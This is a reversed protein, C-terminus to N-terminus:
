TNSTNSSMITSIILLLVIFEITVSNPLFHFMETKIACGYKLTGLSTVSLRRLVKHYFSWVLSLKWLNRNFM